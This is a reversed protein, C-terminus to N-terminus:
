LLFFIRLVNSSVTPVSLGVRNAMQRVKDRQDLKEGTDLGRLHSLEKQNSILIAYKHATERVKLITQLDTEIFPTRFKCGFQPTLLIHIRHLKEHSTVQKRVYDVKTCLSPLKKFHKLIIRYDSLIRTTSIKDSLITLWSFFVVEAILM